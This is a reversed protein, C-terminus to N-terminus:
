KKLIKMFLSDTNSSIMATRTDNPKNKIQNIADFYAPDQSRFYKVLFKVDRRLKLMWEKLEQTDIDDSTNLTETQINEHINEPLKTLMTSFHNNMGEELHKIKESLTENSVFRESHNEKDVTKLIQSIEQLSVLINQTNSLQIYSKMSDLVAKLEDPFSSIANPQYLGKEAFHLVVSKADVWFSSLDMHEASHHTNYLDCVNCFYELPRNRLTFLGGGIYMLLQKLSDETLKQKQKEDSCHSMNQCEEILANLNNLWEPSYEPAQTTQTPNQNQFYSQLLEVFYQGQRELAKATQEEVIEEIAQKLVLSQNSEVSEDVADVRLDDLEHTSSTFNDTKTLPEEQAALIDEVEDETARELALSQNNEVSEDVADLEHTSFTFDETKALPEEQVLSVDEAEQPMPESQIRRQFEQEGAKLEEESAAPIDLLDEFQATFNEELQEALQETQIVPKTDLRTANSGIASANDWDSSFEGNEYTQLGVPNVEMILEKLCALNRIVGDEFGESVCYEAYKELLISFNNPDEKFIVNILSNVKETDCRKKINKVVDSIEDKKDDEACDILQDFFVLPKNADNDNLSNTIQELIEVGALTQTSNKNLDQYDM